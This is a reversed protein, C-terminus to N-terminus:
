SSVSVHIVVILFQFTRINKNWMDNQYKIEYEQKFYVVEIVDRCVPSSRVYVNITKKICEEKM